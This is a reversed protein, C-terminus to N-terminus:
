EEGPLNIPAWHTVGNFSYGGQRRWGYGDGDLRKAHVAILAQKGDTVLHPVHSEISRDTPDYKQWPIM